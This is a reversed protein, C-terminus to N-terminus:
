FAFLTGASLQWLLGNDEVGQQVMDFEKGHLYGLGLNVNLGFSDALM